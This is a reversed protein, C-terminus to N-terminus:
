VILLLLCVLSDKRIIVVLTILEMGERFRYPKTRCLPFYTRMSGVETVLGYLESNLHTYTIIVLASIIAV